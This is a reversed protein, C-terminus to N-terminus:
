LVANAERMGRSTGTKLFSSAAHQPMRPMSAAHLLPEDATTRAGSTRTSNSKKESYSSNREGMCMTFWSSLSEILATSWSLTEADRFQTTLTAKETYSPVEEMRMPEMM